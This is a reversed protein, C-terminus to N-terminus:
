FYEFPHQVPEPPLRLGARQHLPDSESVSELKWGLNAVYFAVSKRIGPLQCDDVFIVRDGRVAISEGFYDTPM